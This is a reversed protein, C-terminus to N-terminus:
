EMEEQTDEEYIEKIDEETVELIWHLKGKIQKNKEFKKFETNQPRKYYILSFVGLLDYDQSPLKRLSETIRDGSVLVDHLIVIRMKRDRKSLKEGENPGKADKRLEYIGDLYDGRRTRERYQVSVVPIGARKGVELALLLNSGQPVVFCDIQCIKEKLENVLFNYMLRGTEECVTVNYLATYLDIYYNVDDYLRESIDLKTLDRIFDKQLFLEKAASRMSQLDKYVCARVRLFEYRVKTFQEQTLGLTDFISSRREEEHTQIYSIDKRYYLEMMKQASKLMGKEKLRIYSPPVFISLNNLYAFDYVGAIGFLVIVLDGIFTLWDLINGTMVAAAFDSLYNDWTTEQDACFVAHMIFFVITIVIIAHIIDALTNKIHNWGSFRKM